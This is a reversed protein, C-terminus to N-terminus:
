ICSCLIKYKAHSIRTYSNTDIFERFFNGKACGQYNIKLNEGRTVFKPGKFHNKRLKLDFQSKKKHPCDKNIMECMLILLIPLHRWVRMSSSQNSCGRAKRDENNDNGTRKM